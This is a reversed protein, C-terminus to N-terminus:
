YIFIKTTQIRAKVAPHPNAFDSFSFSENTKQLLKNIHTADKM